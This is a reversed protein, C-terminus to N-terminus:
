NENCAVGMLAGHRDIWTMVRREFEECARQYSPCYSGWFCSGDERSQTHVVYENDRKHLIIRAPVSGNQRPIDFSRLINLNGNM